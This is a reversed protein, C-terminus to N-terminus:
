KLISFVRQSLVTDWGTRHDLANRVPEMAIEQKHTLRRMNACSTVKRGFLDSDITERSMLEFFTVNCAFDIKM